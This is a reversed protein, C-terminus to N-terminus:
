VKSGTVEVVDGKAFKFGEKMVFAVPGLYVKMTEQDTELMVHMGAWGRHTPNERVAEITGELVVETATDYRPAQAKKITTKEAAAKETAPKQAKEAAPQQAASFSAGVFAALAAVLLLHLFRKTRM